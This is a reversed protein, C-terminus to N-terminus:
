RGRSGTRRFTGEPESGVGPDGGAGECEPVVEADSRHRVAAGGSAHKRPVGDEGLAASETAESASVSPMLPMAKFSLARGHVQGANPFAFGLSEENYLAQHMPQLLQPKPGTSRQPCITHFSEEQVVLAPVHEIRAFREMGDKEAEILASCSRGRDSHLEALADALDVEWKIGLGHKQCYEHLAEDDVTRRTSAPQNALFRLLAVATARHNGDIIITLPKQSAVVLSPYSAIAIPAMSYLGGDANSRLIEEMMKLVHKAVSFESRPLSALSVHVYPLQQHGHFHVYGVRNIHPSALYSSEQAAQAIIREWDDVSSMDGQHLVQFAIILRYFLKLQKNFPKKLGGIPDKLFAHIELFERAHNITGEALESALEALSCKWLQLTTAAFGESVDYDVPVTIFDAKKIKTGASASTIQMKGIVQRMTAETQRRIEPVHHKWNLLVLGQHLLLQLALTCAAPPGREPHRSLTYNMRGWETELDGFEDWDNHTFFTGRVTEAMPFLRPLAHHHSRGIDCVRLVALNFLDQFSPNSIDAPLKRPLPSRIQSGYEAKMISEATM